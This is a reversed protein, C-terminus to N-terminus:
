IASINHCLCKIPKLNLITILLSLSSRQLYSLKKPWCISNSYKRHFLNNGISLDTKRLSFHSLLSYFLVDKPHLSLHIENKHTLLDVLFVYYRLKLQQQLRSHTSLETENLRYILWFHNICAQRNINNIYVGRQIWKMQNIESVKNWFCGNVHPRYFLQESFSRLISLYVFAGSSVKSFLRRRYIEWVVQM